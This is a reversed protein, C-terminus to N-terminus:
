RGPSATVLFGAVALVVTVLVTEAAVSYVFPRVTTADGRLAVAFDLRRDVWRKSGLGGVLAAALVALKILLLHGYSTSILASLSGLLRWALVLGALVITAVTGLALKSYRPVVRALVDPRRGPLVGFLLMALGGVWLSVAVLHVLVLVQMLAPQPLDRSHGTLGNTRLFGLGVAGAGVRWAWSRAAAEGRRSLDVLVVGALVWLLARAVWVRGFDLGIAESLVDFRFADTPPRQLVWAGELGLGAVTGALGLVWGLVVVRRAGRESAGAPWLVALFFLGGWFLAGGLYDVVRALVYWSHAADGAGTAGAALLQMHVTM